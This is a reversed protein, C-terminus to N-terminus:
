LREAKEKTKLLQFVPETSNLDLQSPWHLIDWKKTKLFDRTAKVIYKPENDVQVTFHQGM